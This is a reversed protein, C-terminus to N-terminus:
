RMGILCSIQLFLIRPHKSLNFGRQFALVGVQVAPCLFPAEQLHCSMPPQNLAPHGIAVRHAKEQIPLFSYVEM